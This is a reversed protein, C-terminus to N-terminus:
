NTASVPKVASSLVEGLNLFAYYNFRFCIKFLGCYVKLMKPAIIGVAHLRCLGRGSEFRCLVTKCVTREGNVCLIMTNYDFITQSAM